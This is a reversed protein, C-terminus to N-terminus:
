EYYLNMRIHAELVQEEKRPQGVFLTEHLGLSSASSASKSCRLMEGSVLRSILYQLPLYLPEPTAPTSTARAGGPIQSFTHVGGGERM